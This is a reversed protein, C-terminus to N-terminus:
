LFNSRMMLVKLLVPRGKFITPLPTASSSSRRRALGFM